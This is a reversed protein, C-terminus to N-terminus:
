KAGLIARAADTGSGDVDRQFLYLGMDSSILGYRNREFAQKLVAPAYLSGSRVLLFDADGHSFRLDFANVRASVHPVETESGAVSANPPIMALMKKLVAYRKKEDASMTFEIKGFGGVFTHHQLIAGYAYSHFFMAAAMAGLAANRRVLGDRPSAGLVRLMLIAAAFVYPAGHMGYHFSISVTPAYGTTLLTFFFGPIALLALAPRRLPLFALPLFIHLFYVAKVETLLTKFFFTPNILMTQVVSGYGPHGAVQLDKYIDAFWSHYLRPMIVFKILIFWATSVTALVMGLRPRAGTILLFVGLVAVGVAVDERHAYLVVVFIGALLNRRTAIAWFLWFAWFMLPMLEHFDYFNPGHVPAYLLYLLSFLAAAPRSIQTRAFLYMPIAAMGVITAQYVLLTEATPHLAYFPLWTFFMAFMAHAGVYYGGDPGLFMPCRWPMGHLANAAWNVHIGLDYGSTGLRWHNQLTYYSFYISYFIGGAAVLALPLHRRLASPWGVRPLSWPWSFCALAGRLSWEVLVTFATLYVLYVLPSRYAFEYMLLTPVIALPVAPRLATTLWELRSLGVVGTGLLYVAGLGGAVLAGAVVVLFIASREPDSLWNSRVFSDLAPVSMRATQVFLGLAGGILALAALARVVRASSLRAQSWPAQPDLEAEVIPDAFSRM